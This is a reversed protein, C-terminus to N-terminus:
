GTAEMGPGGEYHYYVWSSILYTHAKGDDDYWTGTRRNTDGTRIRHGRAKLHRVASALDTTGCYDQAELQSLKGRRRIVELVRELKTPPRNAM